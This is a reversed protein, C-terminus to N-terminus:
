LLHRFCTFSIKYTPNYLRYKVTHKISVYPGYPYTVLIFILRYFDNRFIWLNYFPIINNVVINLFLLTFMPTFVFKDDIPNFGLKKCVSQIYKWSNKYTDHYNAMKHYLELASQSSEPPKM